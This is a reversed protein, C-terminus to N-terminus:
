SEGTKLDGIHIMTTPNRMSLALQELARGNAALARAMELTTDNTQASTFTCNQIVTGPQATPAKSMGAHQQRKAM